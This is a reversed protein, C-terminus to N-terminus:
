LASICLGRILRARDESHYTPMGGLNSSHNLDTLALLDRSGEFSIEFAPMAWPNLISRTLGSFDTILLPIERRIRALSTGSLEM